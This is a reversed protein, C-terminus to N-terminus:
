RRRRRTLTAGGALALLTAAGPTPIVVFSVDDLGGSGSFEFTVSTVRTADFGEDETATATAGGEGIQGALTTMDLTDYGNPGQADIDFSWSAPVDYVRMAGELDIMTVIVENGGDVDLLKVSRMEVANIFDFVFTGGGLADNPADFIGPVTQVPSDPSQLILANGLGVLLDPDQGGLNPGAFSTDFIAAGLNNAGFANINVLAGFTTPSSIAQGNLLPTLFDDETDFNLTTVAGGLSLSCATALVGAALAFREM